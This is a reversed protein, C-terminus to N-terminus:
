EKQENKETIETEVVPEEEITLGLLKRIKQRFMFLGAGLAAAGAIVMQIVMSGFGPDLYM